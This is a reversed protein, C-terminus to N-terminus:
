ELAYTDQIHRFGLSRFLHISRRNKPNINAVFHGPRVSAEAPLPTVHELLANLAAKGYGQGRHKRFLVIGVENRMTVSVCGVWEGEIKVLLWVHYPRRECFKEHEARLPLSRHSINTNPDDETSREVLLDWLVDVAGPTTYADHLQISM